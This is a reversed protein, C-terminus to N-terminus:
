SANQLFILIETAFGSSNHYEIYFVDFVSPLLPKIEKSASMFLPKDVASLLGDTPIDGKAESRIDHLM